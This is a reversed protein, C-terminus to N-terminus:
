FLKQVPEILRHALPFPIALFHKMNSLIKISVDISPKSEEWLSFTAHIFINLLTLGSNINNELEKIDGTIDNHSLLKYKIAMAALKSSLVESSELSFNQIAEISRALLQYGPYIKINEGEIVEGKRLL